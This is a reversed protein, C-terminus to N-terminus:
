FLTYVLVHFYLCNQWSSHLKFWNKNKSPPGSRNIDRAHKIKPYGSIFKVSILTLLLRLRTFGRRLSCVSASNSKERDDVASVLFSFTFFFSHNAFLNIWINWYRLLTRFHFKLWRDNVDIPELQTIYRLQAIYQHNPYWM